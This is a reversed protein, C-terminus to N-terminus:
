KNLWGKENALVGEIFGRRYEWTQGETKGRAPNICSDDGYNNCVLGALDEEKGEKGTRWRLQGNLWVAGCKDCELRQFSDM